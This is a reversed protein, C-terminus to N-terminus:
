RALRQGASIGPRELTVRLLAAVCGVALAACALAQYYGLGVSLTLVKILAYGMITHVVYLPYSIAALGDIAAVKRFHGRGFYALAFVALAYLYNLAVSFAIQTNGIQCKLCYAFAALLIAASGLLKRSGLKGELHYKFVVGIFMYPLYGADSAIVKFAQAAPLVGGLLLKAAVVILLTAIFLPASRARLILPMLLAALLYFKLEIALSWNVLDISPLGELSHILLANGIIERWSLEFPLNWHRSSAYLVACDIAVAAFYVPYIRLLRAALFSLRSHHTLSFPIVFGSILFFLAVGFPGSNHWQSAAINAIWPEDGPQVPSLTASAVLDRGRWYFGFWHNVVVCLAAVGRLQDAFIIKERVASL